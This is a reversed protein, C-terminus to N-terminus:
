RSLAFDWSTADRGAPYIRISTGGCKGAEYTRTEDTDLNIIEIYDTCYAAISKNESRNPNVYFSYDPKILDTTKIYIKFRYKTNNTASVTYAFSSASVTALVLAILAHIKNMVGGKKVNIVGNM